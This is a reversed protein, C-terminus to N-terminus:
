RLIPNGNCGGNLMRAHGQVARAFSYSDKANLVRTPLPVGGPRGVPPLPTQSAFNAVDEPRAASFFRPFESNDFYTAFPTALGRAKLRCVNATYHAEHFAAPANIGPAPAVLGHERFRLPRDDLKPPKRPAGVAAATCNPRLPGHFPLTPLSASRHEANLALNSVMYTKTGMTALQRWAKLVLIKRCPKAVVIASTFFLYSTPEVCLFSLWELLAIGFRQHRNTQLTRSIENFDLFIPAQTAEEELRRFVRQAVTDGKLGCVAVTEAVGVADSGRGPVVESDLGPAAAAFRQQIKDMTQAEDIDAKRIREEEMEDELAELEAELEALQEAATEEEARCPVKCVDGRVNRHRSRYSACVAMAVGTSATGWFTPMPMSSTWHLHQRSSTGRLRVGFM